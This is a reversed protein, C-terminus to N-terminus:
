EKAQVRMLSLVLAAIAAILVAWFGVLYDATIPMGSAEKAIDADIRTKLFLMFATALAGSIAAAVSMSRSSGLSFGAGIFLAVLTIVAGPMPATKKIQGSMPEKMESGTVLQVGTFQM